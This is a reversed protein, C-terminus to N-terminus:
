QQNMLLNIMKIYESCMSDYNYKDYEEYLAKRMISLKETDYLLNILNEFLLDINFPSFSVGKMNKLDRFHYIDPVVLPTKSAIYQKSAGSVSAIDENFWQYGIDSIYVRENLEDQTLFDSILKVQDELKYENIVKMAKNYEEKCIKIFHQDRNQYSHLLQLKINKDKNLYSMLKLISKDVEKSPFLFGTSVIIKDNIDYGYKCKLQAISQTPSFLPVGHRLIKIKSSKSYNPEEHYIALDCLNLISDLNFGEEHVTIIIKKGMGKIKKIFLLLKSNIVFASTDYQLHIIDINNNKIESILKNASYKFDYNFITYGYKRLINSIHETYTAIGCQHNWSGWFAINLCYINDLSLVLFLMFIKKCLM